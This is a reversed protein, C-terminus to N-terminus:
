SLTVGCKAAMYQEVTAIDPASLSANYIIIDMVRADLFNAADNLSGIKGSTPTVDIASANTTEVANNNSIAQTTTSRRGRLVNWQTNTITKSVQTGATNHNLAFGGTSTNSHIFQIVNQGGANRFYLINGNYDQVNSILSAFVTLGSAGVNNYVGAPLTLSQAGFFSLAANSGVANYVLGPQRSATGQTVHNNNGSKDNWQSIGEVALAAAVYNNSLTGVINVTVGSVSSITYEDAGNLRVAMGPFLDASIDGSTAFSTAGSTGTATETKNIYAKTITTLDTADYWALLNTQPIPFPDPPPPVVGGVAKMLFSKTLPVIWDKTM